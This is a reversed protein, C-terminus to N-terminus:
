QSNQNIGKDLDALSKSAKVEITRQDRPPMDSYESFAESLCYNDIERLEELTLENINEALKKIEKEKIDKIKSEWVASAIHYNISSNRYHDEPKAKWLINKLKGSIEM